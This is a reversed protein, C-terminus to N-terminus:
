QCYHRSNENERLFQTACDLLSKSWRLSRCADIVFELFRPSMQEVMSKGDVNGLMTVGAKSLDDGRKELERISDAVASDIFATYKM